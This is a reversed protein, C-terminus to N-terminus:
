VSNVLQGIKGQLRERRAEYFDMFKTIKKPVEGLFYLESYHQRAQEDTFHEDMWETPMKARKEVNPIGELLQLNSIRNACDSYADQHEDAVGANRLQAKTFRSKPFIHDIHFHHTRVDISPLVLTLLAFVRRDSIAM